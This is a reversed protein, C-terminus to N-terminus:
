RSGVVALPLAKGAFKRRPTPLNTAIRALERASAAAPDDVVVPVGRDGAERLALDLPVQGLLPAAADDALRQGGGTGFVATQTGCNACVAASMNEIVGLVPVGTGSAMRAVRTAVTQAAAQPTTVVLLATDPLVELLSLTADGTGPPLDVFLADLSGWYTDAVFQQLAKHLMPGRWVVPQEENVFFGISMLAVGHAPVPLMLEGLVVPPRRVGFIQPISYGWVDADLVGVRKGTAALAAALNATVTSKGVGGKGSAVAYVKTGGIGLEGTIPVTTNALREGLQARERAPMAVVELEVDRVGDVTRVASQVAASLERSHPCNKTTLRLQLRVRGGRGISGPGIMGLDALPRGIEPDIVSGAAAQVQDLDVRGAM